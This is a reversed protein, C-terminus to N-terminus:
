RKSLQANEERDLWPELVTTGVPGAVYPGGSCALSALCAAPLQSGQM